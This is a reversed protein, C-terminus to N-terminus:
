FKPTMSVKSFTTYVRSGKRQLFIYECSKAQLEQLEAAFRRPFDISRINEERGGGVPMEESHSVPFPKQTASLFIKTKKELASQSYNENSGSPWGHLKQPSFSLPSIAFPESDAASSFLLWGWRSAQPAATPSTEPVDKSILRKLSAAAIHQVLPLPPLLNPRLVYTQQLFSLSSSPPSQSM